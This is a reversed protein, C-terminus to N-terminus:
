TTALHLSEYTPETGPVHTALIAAHPFTSVIDTARSDAAM